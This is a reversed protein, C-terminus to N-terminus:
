GFMWLEKEYRNITNSLTVKKMQILIQTMQAKLTNWTMMTKMKMKRRMKM